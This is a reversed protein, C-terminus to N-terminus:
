DFIRKKKRSHLLEDDTWRMKSPKKKVSSTSYYIKINNPKEAGEKRKKNSSLIRKLFEILKKIKSSISMM